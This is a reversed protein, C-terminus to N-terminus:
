GGPGDSMSKDLPRQVRTYWLTFGVTAMILGLVLGVGSLGSLLSYLRVLYELQKRASEALILRKANEEHRDQIIAIQEPTPYEIEKLRSIEWGISEREQGIIQMEAEVEIVKLKTKHIQLPLFTGSFGALILGSLALFKYLNDTPISPLTM